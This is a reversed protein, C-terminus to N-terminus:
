QAVASLSRSKLRTIDTRIAVFREVRDSADLQPVIVTDMWYLGGDKARNCVEGQWIRGGLITDWM